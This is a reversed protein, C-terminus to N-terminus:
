EIEVVIKKNKGVIPELFHKITLIASDKANKYFTENDKVKKTMDEQCEKAIVEILYGEKDYKSNEYIIDINDKYIVAETVIIKPLKIYVESSTENEVVKVKDFNLGLKTYGEYKAYYKYKAEDTEKKKPEEAKYVSSYPIKLTSLENKITEENLISSISITTKGKRSTMIGILLVLLMVVVVAVLWIKKPSLLMKLINATKKNKEDQGKKNEEVGM